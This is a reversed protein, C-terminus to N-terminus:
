LGSDIKQYHAKPVYARWADCNPQIQDLHMATPIQDRLELFQVSLGQSVHWAIHCHMIWAGPNNIQFAIALWGAPLMAVDRRVPNSFNLKAKDASPNFPGTDSAGLLLFDHGHLHIPHPLGAANDIVVFAWGSKATLEVVNAQRPFSFNKEAIYQLIPKEWMVDISSGNVLWRFVTGSSTVATTLNVVLEKENTTFTSPDASRSVIPVFGTEDHCDATIRTGPNTPLGNQPTGQYSFIAAPFPNNSVGCLGGGGLTANFWYNAVPQSADIVVDYRQGIGLFLQSKVTPQVPVLDAAIVTFNHGVLSLTFHNEVSTNIIRLLHKKGPTLVVRNYAGGKGTPNINSGNFLINDSPPPPGTAQDAKLQLRDATDHYWDTVVYPGLDIDYNAAAPGNIQIAGAIGNGYQVSFHSHYWSTGYQLARFSYTRSHGPPIPCETVGNAGDQDNSNLQRVGHWHFSTGNDELQNHITINLYDGWNAIIPPAPFAGNVLMVPKSVGDPAVSSANTIFLDIKLEVKDTFSWFRGGDDPHALM